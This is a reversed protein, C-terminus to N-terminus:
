APDHQAERASNAQMATIAIMHLIDEVSAGRSLDNAPKALGQLIPGIAIAGGLRQAIKYGINGAELSPFVFVNANGAVPSEAAKAAAVEPVFAADFQLDGDIVLDPRAARALRTAEVVRSVHDHSASGLTSFSLMAVRPAEGTLSTFSQATALAIEAMETADPAVVLGADAFLYAGPKEHHSACFLMLFYSSVLRTDPATGIIQLAARVIEATPLCAGGVTGDALGKRVMLAAFIHPQRVAVAASEPTTGKHRRLELYLEALEPAVPDRAPDVVEIGSGAADAARLAAEIDAAPGVLVPTALKNRHAEIAASVVRPDGGESLAIRQGSREVSRLIKELPKM